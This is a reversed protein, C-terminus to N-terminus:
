RTSVPEEEVIAVAATPLVGMLAVSIIMATTACFNRFCNSSIGIVFDIWSSEPPIDSLINISPLSAVLLIM